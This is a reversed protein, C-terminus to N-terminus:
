GKGKAKLFRRKLVWGPRDDTRRFRKGLLFEQVGADTASVAHLNAHGVTQLGDQKFGTRQPDPRGLKHRFDSVAFVVANKAPMDAGSTRDWFERELLFVFGSEAQSHDVAGATQGPGLAFLADDALFM